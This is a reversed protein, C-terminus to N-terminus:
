MKGNMTVIWDTVDAAFDPDTPCIAYEDGDPCSAQGGALTTAGDHPVQLTAWTMDGNITTSNFVASHWLAYTTSRNFRTSDRSIGYEELVAPKNASKSALEHDDLFTLTWALTDDPTYEPYLHITGFDVNPLKIEADYDQGTYGDYQYSGNATSPRNFYGETGFSVLHNPDISKVFTSMMDAWKTLVAPNCAASTPNLGTGACRAENALEWAFIAPSERYKQVITQVYAKYYTAIQPDTYFLDHPQGYGVTNNVYVDMGGFDSWNNTFTMILKIGYDEAQQVVEDLLGIGNIGNNISPKGGNWAQFYTSQNAPSVMPDHDLFAWLRIVRYGYKRVVQFVADTYNAGFYAVDYVNTGAFSYPQGNLEFRPGNTTLFSTSSVSAILAYVITLFIDRLYM